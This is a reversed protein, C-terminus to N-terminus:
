SKQVKALVTAEFETVPMPRYFVYGQIMDCNEGRLFDVLERTEVGEAVTQMNLEHAMKLVAKIVNEGRESDTGTFFARDLKLVDLPIEKLVNLSSYGSGFDDMSCRYGVANCEAVVAQLIELNEVVMEETVEFEILESPVQYEEQIKQFRKIFGKEHIHERSMNVSIPVPTMGSDMWKRLLECVQSFMYYDLQLIFGNEEFLPIFENPQIIQGDATQWRVLAEAGVVKEDRLRVKPQLYVQFEKEELAREMQNEIYQENILRKAEKETFFVCPAIMGAEQKFKKRAVNARGRIGTVDSDEKKVMYVGCNMAIRYDNWMKDHFTVKLAEKIKTIRLEVAEQSTELLIFNFIDARSRAVVEGPGLLELILQYVKQLVQNGIEKGYLENIVKFRKIDMSVFAFSADEKLYKEVESDFCGLTFGGTVPDQMKINYIEQDRDKLRNVSINFAKILCSLEYSGRLVLPKERNEEELEKLCARMPSIMCKYFLIWFILAWVMLIGLAITTIERARTTAKTAEELELELRTTLDNGFRSVSMSIQEKVQLYEQGFLFEFALEKKEEATLQADETLPYAAVVEPIDTIGMATYLLHMYYLEQDRLEDSLAKATEIQELEKATPNEARIGEIAQDRSRVEMLESLYEEAYMVEENAAFRWIANTLIDAGDKMQDALRHCRLIKQTLMGQQRDADAYKSAALMLLFIMGFTLVMGVILLHNIKFRNLESKQEKKDDKKM